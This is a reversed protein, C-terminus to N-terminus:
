LRIKLTFIAHRQCHRYKGHIPRPLSVCFQVLAIQILNALSFLATEAAKASAKAAFKTLVFWSDHKAMHLVGYSTFRLCPCIQLPLFM